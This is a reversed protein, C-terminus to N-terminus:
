EGLLRSAAFALLFGGITAAAVLGRDRETRHAAPLLSGAGLYVFMGGFFALMVGLVVDPFTAFIGIAAGLLPALADAALWRLATRRSRGHGIVTTVTNLGDSFAHLLVAAAVAVGLGTDAHFAAGVALGDLFAHLTIGGAGVHGAAPNCAVDETHIHGFASREILSFLLAGGAAIAVAGATGVGEEALVETAEPLTEFLAVGVLAGAAFGLVLHLRDRHRLALLGGLSRPVIAALSLVLGLVASVYEM